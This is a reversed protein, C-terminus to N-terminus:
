RRDRALPADEDLLREIPDHLSLNFRLDCWPLRLARLCGPLDLIRARWLRREGM